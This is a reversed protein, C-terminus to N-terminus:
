DKKIVVSQTMQPVVQGSTKIGGINKWGISTLVGDTFVYPTFEDDTTLGDAQLGSRFYFIEIKKGDEIYAETSKGYQVPYQQTPTIVSLVTDKSDGLNVTKAAQHFSSISSNIQM